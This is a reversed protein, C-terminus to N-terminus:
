SRYRTKGSTMKRYNIAETPCKHVCRMCLMCDPKIWEPIRKDLNFSITQTPCNQACLGCGNCILSVNFHKTKRMIKYLPTMGYTSVRPLINKKYFVGCNKDAIQEAMFSTKTEARADAKTREDGIPITYMPLFTDITILEFAANTTLGKKLLQHIMIQPAHACMGGSTVAIFCYYGSEATKIKLKSVFETMLSPVNGFYVPFCFGLRENDKLQYEFANNKIAEEINVANEQTREAIALAM